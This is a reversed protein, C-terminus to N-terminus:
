PYIFITFVVSEFLAKKFKNEVQIEPGQRVIFKIPKNDSGATNAAEISYNGADDEELSNIFLVAVSQAYSASYKVTTETKLVRSGKKWIIDPVPSGTVHM